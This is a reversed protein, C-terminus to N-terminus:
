YLDPFLAPCRPNCTAPALSLASLRDATLYRKTQRLEKRSAKRDARMERHIMQRFWSHSESLLGEPTLHCLCFLKELARWARSDSSPFFDPLLTESLSRDLKRKPSDRRHSM